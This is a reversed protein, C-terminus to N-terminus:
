VNWQRCPAFRSRDIEGPGESCMAFRFSLMRADSDCDTDAARSVLPENYMKLGGGRRVGGGLECVESHLDEVRDTKTSKRRLKGNGMKDGLPPLCM